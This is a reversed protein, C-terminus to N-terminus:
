GPGGPGHRVYFKHTCRGCINLVGAMVWLTTNCNPCQGQLQPMAPPAPQPPPAVAGPYGSPGGAAPAAEEFPGPTTTVTSSSAAPEGPGSTHALSAQLAQQMEDEEQKRLQADRAQRQRIKEQMRQAEEEQKKRQELEEKRRQEEIETVDMSIIHGISAELVCLYYGAEGMGGGGGNAAIEYLYMQVAKLNKTEANAVVFTFIPM